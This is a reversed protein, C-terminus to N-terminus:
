IAKPNSEPLINQNNKIKWKRQLSVNLRIGSFISYKDEETWRAILPKKFFLVFCFFLVSAFQWEKKLGSFSLYVVKRGFFSVTKKCFPRPSFVM